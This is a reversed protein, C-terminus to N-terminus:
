PMVTVKVTTVLGNKTVYGITVEGAKVAAVSGSTVKAVSDDSSTWFGDDATLTMKVGYQDKVTLKAAMDLATGGVTVSYDEDAFSVSTAVPLVDSVTVKTEALKTAGNWVAVTAEGKDVGTVKLDTGFTAVASNSTTAYTVKTGALQVVQGSATKGTLKLDKSGAEYITGAASLEYSTIDKTAVTGMTVDLASNAVDTISFTITESGVASATFKGSTYAVNTFAKDKAEIVIAPFTEMERNYQDVVKVNDSTFSAESGVEFMTPLDKLGTIRTAVAKDVASFTVSNQLVGKLYVYITATGKGSATLELQNKSNFKINNVDIVASNSTGFSLGTGDNKIELALDKPAIQAGFQDVAIYPVVVAEDAVVL